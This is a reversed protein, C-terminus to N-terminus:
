RLPRQDIAELAARALQATTAQRRSRLPDDASLVNAPSLPDSVLFSALAVGRPCPENADELRTALMLLLESAEQVQGRNPPVATVSASRAPQRAQRVLWRLSAALHRRYRRNSLQRARLERPADTTPNAGLALDRDLSVRCWWVRVALSLARPRAHREVPDPARRAFLSIAEFKGGYAPSM